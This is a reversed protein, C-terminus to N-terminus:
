PLDEIQLEARDAALERVKGRMRLADQIHAGAPLRPVPEQWSVGFELRDVNVVGCSVVADLVDRWVLQVIQDQDQFNEFVHLARTLEQVREKSVKAWSSFYPDASGKHSADM